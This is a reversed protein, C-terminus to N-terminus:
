STLSAVPLLELDEALKLVEATQAESLECFPLRTAGLPYGRLRGIEKLVSCFIEGNNWIYDTFPVIRRHVALAASLDKSQLTLRWLEVALEPIANAAAAIWGSCGNLMSLFALSDVGEFLRVKGDTLELIGPVHEIHLTTLKIWPINAVKVISALDAPGLLVQTVFPNNYLMIPMDVAESIAAYHTRIQAVSLAEYYPPIILLGDAGLSQAHRAWEIALRTGPAGAGVLVPVRGGAQDVVIEAERRREHDSLHFVESTSANAILCQVGGSILRDVLRRLAVEDLEDTDADFPTVLPVIVGELDVM